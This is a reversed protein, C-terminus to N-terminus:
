VDVGEGAIAGVMLAGLPDAGVRSVWTTEVGLRALAIAFNSEAGAIRLTLGGGLELPGDEVPDLLAMTEGATLVRSMRAPGPVADPLGAAEGRGRGEAEPVAARRPARLDRGARGRRRTRPLPAGAPRERARLRMGRCGRAAVR